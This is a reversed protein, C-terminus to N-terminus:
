RRQQLARRDIRLCEWMDSEVLEKVFYKEADRRESIAANLTRRADDVKVDLDIMAIRISDLRKDM